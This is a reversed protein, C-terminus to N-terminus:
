FSSSADVIPPPLARAPPTTSPTLPTLYVGMGGPIVFSCFFPHNGMSKPKYIASFAMKQEFSKVLYVGSVNKSSYM